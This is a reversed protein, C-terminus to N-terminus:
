RRGINPLIFIVIILYFLSLVAFIINVAPKPVNFIVMLVIIMSFIICLIGSVVKQKSLSLPKMEKLINGFKGFM